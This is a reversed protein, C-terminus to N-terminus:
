PRLEKAVDNRRPTFDDLPLAYLKDASGQLTLV